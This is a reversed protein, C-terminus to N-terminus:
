SVCKVRFSFSLPLSPWQGHLSPNLCPHLLASNLLLQELREYNAFFVIQSYVSTSM